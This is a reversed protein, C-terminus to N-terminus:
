RIYFDRNNASHNADWQRPTLVHDRVTILACPVKKAPRPTGSSNIKKKIGGEKNESLNESWFQIRTNSFLSRKLTLHDRNFNYTIKRMKLCIVHRHRPIIVGLNKM